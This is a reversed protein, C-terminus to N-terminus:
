TGTMARGQARSIEGHADIDTPVHGLVRALNGIYDVPKQLPYTLIVLDGATKDVKVVKTEKAAAPEAVIQM